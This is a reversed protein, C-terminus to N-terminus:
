SSTWYPDATPHTPSGEVHCALLTKLKMDTVFKVFSEQSYPCRPWFPPGYATRTGLRKRLEVCDVQM